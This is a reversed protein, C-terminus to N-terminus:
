DFRQKPGEAVRLPPCRTYFLRSSNACGQFTINHQLPKLLRPVRVEVGGSLPARLLPASFRANLPQPAPAAAAENPRRTNPVLTLRSRFSTPTTGENEAHGAGGARCVRGSSVHRAPRGRERRGSLPTASLASFSAILVLGMSAPAHPSASPTTRRVISRGFYSLDHRPTHDREDGGIVRFRVKTDSCTSLYVPLVCLIDLIDRPDARRSTKFRKPNPFYKTGIFCCSPRPLGSCAGAAACPMALAARRSACHALAGSSAAADGDHPPARTSDAPERRHRKRKNGRSRRQKQEYGPGRSEGESAAARHCRHVSFPAALGSALEEKPIIPIHTVSTVCQVRNICQICHIVHRPSAPTNSLLKV